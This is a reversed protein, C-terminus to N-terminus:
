GIQFAGAKWAELPKQERERRESSLTHGRTTSPRWLLLSAGAAGQGSCCGARELVLTVPGPSPESDPTLPTLCITPASSTMFLMPTPDLPIQGSRGVLIIKPVM